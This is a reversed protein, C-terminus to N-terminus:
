GDKRKTNNEADQTRIEQKDKIFERVVAPVVKSYLADMAKVLEVELYTDKHGLYVRLADIKEGDFGITVTKKDM